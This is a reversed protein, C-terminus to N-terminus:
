APLKIGIYVDNVDEGLISTKQVQICVLKLPIPTPIIVQDSSCVFSFSQFTQFPQFLPLSILVGPASRYTIGGPKSDSIQKSLISTKLAYACLSPMARFSTM